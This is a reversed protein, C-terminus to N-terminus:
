LKGIALLLKEHGKILRSFQELEKIIGLSNDKDKSHGSKEM